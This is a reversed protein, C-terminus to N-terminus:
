LCFQETNVNRRHQQRENNFELPILRNHSDISRKLTSNLFAETYTGLIRILNIQNIKTNVPQDIRQPQSPKPCFYNVFCISECNHLVRKCLQISSRQGVAQQVIPSMYPNNCIRCSSLIGRYNSM